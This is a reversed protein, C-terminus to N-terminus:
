RKLKLTVEVNGDHPITLVQGDRGGPGWGASEHWVVLRWKGAPAQRIEFAGDADTVAFYPHDFVRVWGKMWPHLLCGLSIPLRDAQLSNVMLSGHAPLLTGGGPNRKPDGAYKFAHAVEDRNVVALEQGERLALAHPVFTANREELHVAKNAIKLFDQHIPLKRPAMPDSPDPTLWLFTWRVGRNSKNVVWEEDLIPAKFASGNPHKRVTAIAKQEPLTSEDLIVRGKVTGWSTKGPVAPTAATTAVAPVRQTLLYAMLHYFEPEAIQEAFNTPM